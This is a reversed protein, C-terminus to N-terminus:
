YYTPFREGPEARVVDLRPDEVLQDIAARPAAIGAWHPDVDETVCWARDAPWSFAPNPGTGEGVYALPDHTGWDGAQSLPGYFLYYERNPVIVKAPTGSGTASSAPQVAPEAWPPSDGVRIRATLRPPPSGDLEGYGDWLCFYCDEPTTTHARLVEFVIALSEDDSRDDDVVADAEHQGPYAPDPIYRLRAYAEFGTPGLVVLEDWPQTQRTLWDAPSGDTCLALAMVSLM